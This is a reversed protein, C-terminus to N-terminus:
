ANTEKRARERIQDPTLDQKHTALGWQHGFPDEIHGFRDGWFADHVAMKVTAGAEVARAFVKDVDEVYLFLSGPSGGLGEPSRIGREPFEDSLMVISDGIKIEAHMVRGDPSPMRMREEAGFARRYFAIARDAGRVTLSATVTHYGDPIPKAM